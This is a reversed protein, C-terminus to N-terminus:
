VSMEKIVFLYVNENDDTCLASERCLNRWISDYIQQKYKEVVEPHDTPIKIGYADKESVVTDMWFPEGLYIDMEKEEPSEWVIDKLYCLAHNVVLPMGTKKEYWKGDMQEQESLTVMLNMREKKEIREKGESYDIVMNEDMLKRLSERDILLVGNSKALEKANKTFNSNTMVVSKNCGYHSKSAVVEQVASNDVPGNFRKCQVAYKDSGSKAIIDAGFDNSGPTVEVDIFGCFRLINACAFEFQRGDMVDIQHMTYVPITNTESSVIGKNDNKRQRKENFLVYILLFVPSIVALIFVSLFVYMMM